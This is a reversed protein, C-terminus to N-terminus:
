EANYIGIETEKLSKSVFLRLLKGREKRASMSELVASLIPPYVCLVVVVVTRDMRRHRQEGQSSAYLDCLDCIKPTYRESGLIMSSPNVKFRYSDVLLVLLLLTLLAGHLCVLFFYGNM